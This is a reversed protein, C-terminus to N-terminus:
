AAGDKGSTDSVQVSSVDNRENNNIRSAHRRISSLVSTHDKKFVRGIQPLTYGLEERMRYYVEARARTNQVSRGGLMIEVIDVDYKNSAEIVLKGWRSAGFMTDPRKSARIISLALYSSNRGAQGNQVVPGPADLQVQELVDDKAEIRKYAMNPPKPASRLRKAVARYHERLSEEYTTM